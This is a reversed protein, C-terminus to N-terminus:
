SPRVRRSLATLDRAYREPREWRPTHGGGEYVTLGARPVLGVLQEQMARLILQDEDGLVLMAPVTLGELETTDDSVLLSTRVRAMSPSM